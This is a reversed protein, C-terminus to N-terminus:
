NKSRCGTDPSIATDTSNSLHNVMLPDPQIEEKTALTPM